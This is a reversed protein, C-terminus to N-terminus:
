FNGKHKLKRTYTKASKHVHTDSHFGPGKIEMYAERNGKKMAKVADLTTSHKKQKM